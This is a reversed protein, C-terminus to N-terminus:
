GLGDLLCSRRIDYGLISTELQWCFVLCSTTWHWRLQMLLNYETKCRGISLLFDILRLFIVTKNSKRMRSCSFPHWFRHYIVYFQKLISILTMKYSKPSVLLLNNTHLSTLFNPKSWYIATSNFKPVLCVDPRMVIQQVYWLLHQGM